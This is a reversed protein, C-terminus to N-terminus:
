TRRLSGASIRTVGTFRYKEKQAADLNAGNREFSKYTIELLRKQETTLSSNDAEYVHKIRAFLEENLTINNSHETLLSYAEESIEQLEDDSRVNMYTNLASTVMALLNGTRDLAHITNEFDPTERNDTIAKIEGEEKEIGAKIAPLIHCLEIKDFPIAEFPTTLQEM